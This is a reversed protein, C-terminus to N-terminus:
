ACRSPRRSAAPTRGPRSRRPRCSWRPPRGRHSLGEDGPGRQDEEGRRAVAARPAGLPVERLHELPPPVVLREPHAEDRLLLAGVQELTEPDLRRGRDDDDLLLAHAPPEGLWATALLDLCEEGGPQLLPNRAGRRRRLVPRM